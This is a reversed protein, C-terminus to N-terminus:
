KRKGYGRGEKLLEKRLEDLASDLDSCIKTRSGVVIKWFNEELQILGMVM